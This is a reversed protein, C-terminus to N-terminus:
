HLPARRSRPRPGAYLLAAPRPCLVWRSGARALLLTQWIKLRRPARLRAMGFLARSVPLACCHGQEAAVAVWILLGRVAAVSAGARLGPLADPAALPIAVRGTLHLDWSCQRYGLLLSAGSRLGPLADPAAVTAVCGANLMQLLLCWAIEVMSEVDDGSWWPPTEKNLHKEENVVYWAVYM